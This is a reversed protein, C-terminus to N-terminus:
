YMNWWTLITRIYAGSVVLSTNVFPIKARYLEVLVTLGKQKM